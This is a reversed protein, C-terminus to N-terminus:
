QVARPDADLAQQKSLDVVTMKYNEKFYHYDLLCGTTYNDEQGTANRRINGYTTIDDNIPQNFFDRGGIKVNYDKIEVKPLYDAIEPETMKM